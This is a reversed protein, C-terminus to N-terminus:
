AHRKSAKLEAIWETLKAAAVTTVETRGGQTMNFTAWEPVPKAQHTSIRRKVATEIGRAQQISQLTEVHAVSWGRKEHEYVRKIEQAIGVKAVSHGEFTHHLVYVFAPQPIPLPSGSPQDAALAAEARRLEELAALQASRHEKQARVTAQVKALTRADEVSHGRQVLRAVDPELAVDLEPKPVEPGAVKGAQVVAQVKALTKADEISYGKQV